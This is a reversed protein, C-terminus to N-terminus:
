GTSTPLQDPANQEESRDGKSRERNERSTSRAATKWDILIVSFILQDVVKRTSAVNPDHCRSVITFWM